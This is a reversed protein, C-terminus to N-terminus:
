KRLRMAALVAGAGGIIAAPVAIMWWEIAPKEIPVEEPPTTGSPVTVMVETEDTIHFVPKKGEYTLYGAAVLLDYEGEAEFKIRGTVTKTGPPYKGPLYPCAAGEGRRPVWYLKGGSILVVRGPGSILALGIGPNETEQLLEIDASFQTYKGPEIPPQIDVGILAVQMPM